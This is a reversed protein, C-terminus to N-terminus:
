PREEGSGSIGPVRHPKRGEVGYEWLYLFGGIIYGLFPLVLVIAVDLLYRLKAKM